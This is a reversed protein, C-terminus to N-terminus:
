RMGLSSVWPHLPAQFFDPFMSVDVQEKGTQRQIISLALSRIYDTTFGKGDALRRSIQAQDMADATSLGRFQVFLYLLSLCVILAGFMAVKILTGLRGQDLSHVATQVRVDSTVM